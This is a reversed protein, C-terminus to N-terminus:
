PLVFKSKLSLLPELSLSLAGSDDGRRSRVNKSEGRISGCGGQQPPPQLDPKRLSVTPHPGRLSSPSSTLLREQCAVGPVGPFAPPAHPSPKGLTALHAPSPQATCPSM